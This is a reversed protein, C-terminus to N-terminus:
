RAVLEVRRNLQGGETTNPVVPALPGAGHADLRAAVIGFDRGLAAAV